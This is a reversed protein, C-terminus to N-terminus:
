AEVEAQCDAGPELPINQVGRLEGAVILLLFHSLTPERDDRDNVITHVDIIMEDGDWRSQNIVWYHSTAGPFQRVVFTEIITGVDDTNTQALAPMTLIGYLAGIIIWQHRM